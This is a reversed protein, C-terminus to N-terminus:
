RKNTELDLVVSFVGDSFASYGVVNQNDFLYLSKEDKLISQYDNLLFLLFSEVFVEKSFFSV